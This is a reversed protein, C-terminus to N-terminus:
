EAGTMQVKINRKGNQIFSKVNNLSYGTMEVIEHYSKEKLYFLEICERQEDKLTKIAHELMVLQKEKENANTHHANYNIEVFHRMDKKLADNKDKISKDSRLQMLSANKAVMYLWGKFNEIEHKKLDELLKEFIQMVVDQSKEENKLYKMCVGFVLRTYREFLVGVFANDNTEKYRKILETDTYQNHQQISLLKPKM